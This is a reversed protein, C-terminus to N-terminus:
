AIGYLTWAGWAILIVGAFQGFRRNAPILKEAAVYVALGVIWSLEMVGGYFLLTMLVWCCGLCYAGHALGMRFAGSLGKRWNRAFFMLPSQCQRLCAYKLPTLQYVGAAILLTGGVGASVVAMMGTLPVLQSTAIQLAVATLSFLSWIAAYGATFIAVQRHFQNRDTLKRNMAAFTLIAPAASPLMMAMMMSWWMVFLLLGHLPTGAAPMSPQMLADGARQTMWLGLATAVALGAIVLARDHFAAREVLSRAAAAERM